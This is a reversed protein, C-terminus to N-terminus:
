KAPPAIWHSPQMTSLAEVQSDPVTPGLVKRAFIIAGEEIVLEWAHIAENLVTLFWTFEEPDSPSALLGAIEDAMTGHDPLDYCGLEINDSAVEILKGRTKLARTSLYSWGPSWTDVYQCFFIVPPLFCNECLHRYFQDIENKIDSPWHSPDLVDVDRSSSAHSWVQFRHHAARGPRGGLKAITLLQNM